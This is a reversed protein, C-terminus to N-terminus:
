AHRRSGSWRAPSSLSVTSPASIVRSTTVKSQRHLQDVGAVADALDVARDREVRREAELLPPAHRDAVLRDVHEHPQRPSLSRSSSVYLM